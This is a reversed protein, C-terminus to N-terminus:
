LTAAGLMRKMTRSLQPSVLQNTELLYYFRATQIATAAHSLNHLPDREYAPSKGYEKGVWLGGNVLPDYLRFRESRLILFLRM